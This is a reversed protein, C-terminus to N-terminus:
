ATNTVAAREKSGKCSHNRQMMLIEEFGENEQSHLLGDLPQKVIHQVV